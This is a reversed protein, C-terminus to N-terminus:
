ARGLVGDDWIKGPNKQGNKRLPSGGKGGGQEGRVRNLQGGSEAGPVGEPTKGARQGSALAKPLNETKKKRIRSTIRAAPKML